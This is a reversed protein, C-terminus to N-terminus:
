GVMWCEEKLQSQQNSFFEQKPEIHKYELTGQPKRHTQKFLTEFNKTILLLLNDTENRPRLMDLNM